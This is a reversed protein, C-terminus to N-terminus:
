FNRVIEQEVPGKIPRISAYKWDKNMHYDTVYDLIRWVINMTYFELLLLVFQMLIKKLQHNELTDKSNATSMLDSFLKVTLVFILMVCLTFYPIVFMYRKLHVGILLFIHTVILICMSSINVLNFHKLNKSFLKGVTM